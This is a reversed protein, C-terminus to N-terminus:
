TLSYVFISLSSATGSLQGSRIKFKFFRIRFKLFSIFIILYLGFRVKEGRLHEDKSIKEILALREKAAKKYLQDWKEKILGLYPNRGVIDERGETNRGKRDKDELRPRASHTTGM